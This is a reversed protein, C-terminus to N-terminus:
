YLHPVPYIYLESDRGEQLAGPEPVLATISVSAGALMRLHCTQGAGIAGHRDGSDKLM